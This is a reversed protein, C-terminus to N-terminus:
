QAAQKKMDSKVAHISASGIRAAQAPNVEEQRYLDLIYHGNRHPNRYTMLARYSEKVRTFTEIESHSIGRKSPLNVTLPNVSKGHHKMRYDLHPGTALGTAGVTGIMQGQLVQCGTSILSSITALHGYCTTFEGGHAVEVHYGNKKDYGAKRVIGDAASYVPTGYPAAYDIGLHPMVIGLIPHRRQYTFASSIYTYRLPAKLFEKQVSRGNLDYYRIVGDGTRFGVAYYDSGNVSSYRAALIDGYGICRGEAYRRSFLIQFSDGKRPDLFFNIDWAFIDSLGCALYPGLEYRQMADFLTTELTGNLLDRSVTVIVPQQVATFLSDKRVAHYWCRQRSLLSLKVLAGATDYVLSLSDGAYLKNLGAERLAGSLLYSYKSNIAFERLIGKLTEGKQVRHQVNEHCPRLIANNQVSPLCIPVPSDKKHSCTATLAACIFIGNILPFFLFSSSSRRRRESEKAASTIVIL